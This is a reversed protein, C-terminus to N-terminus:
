CGKPLTTGFYHELTVEAHWGLGVVNKYGVVM